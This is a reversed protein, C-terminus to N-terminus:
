AFQFRVQTKARSRMAFGIAAFGLLMLMWTGPEPVASLMDLDAQLAVPNSSGGPGNRVNFVLTNTGNQFATGSYSLTKFEGPKYTTANGLAGNVVVPGYIAVNNLFISVIGNDSWYKGSLLGSTFSTLTFVKSFAFTTDQSHSNSANPYIWLAGGSSAGNNTTGGNYSGPVNAPAVATTVANTTLNKVTWSSNTDLSQVTTVAYSATPLSVAALTFALAMTHKIMM